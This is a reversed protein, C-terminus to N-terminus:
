ADFEVISDRAVLVVEGADDRAATEFSLVVGPRGSIKPTASVLTTCATLADGACIPRGLEFEFAGALARSEDIAFHELKVARPVITFGLVYSIPAVVDPFGARQAAELSHHAPNRLRLAAAFRCLEERTIERRYTGTAAGARRTDLSANM